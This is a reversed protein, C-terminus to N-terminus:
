FGIIELIREIDERNYYEIEIKGKNATGKIHVRTGFFREMIHEIETIEAEKEEAKHKKPRKLQSVLREADRVSLGNQIIKEALKLQTSQDAAALARAHGASLLQMGVLEKIKDPLHLLRLSNAIAPRSKGVRKSLEEQTLGYENILQNYANAEEIPNLDERQINEILAIEFIQDPSYEKIIAPIKDLGAIRAARWRREGAIILYRGGKKQLLLPQVIGHASISEALENLSQEVFAKRPQNQNPDILNIDVEIVSNAEERATPILSELGRGLVKKM